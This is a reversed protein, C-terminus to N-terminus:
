SRASRCCLSRTLYTPLSRVTGKMFPINIKYEHKTRGYNQPLRLILRVIPTLTATLAASSFIVFYLGLVINVYDKNIFKFVLYLGFLVCSGIVPFMYVDKTSM